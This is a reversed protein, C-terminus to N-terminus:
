CGPAVAALTICMGVATRVVCIGLASLWILVELPTLIVVSNPLINFVKSM